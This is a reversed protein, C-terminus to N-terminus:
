ESNLILGAQLRSSWEVTLAIHSKTATWSANGPLLNDTGEAYSIRIQRTASNQIELCFYWPEGIFTAVASCSSTMQFLKNEKYWLCEALFNIKKWRRM